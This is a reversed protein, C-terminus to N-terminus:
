PQDEKELHRIAIQVAMWSLRRLDRDGTRCFQLFRSQAEQLFQTCIPGADLRRCERKAFKLYRWLHKDLVRRQSKSNEDSGLHGHRQARPALARGKPPSSSTDM